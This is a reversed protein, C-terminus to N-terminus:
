GAADGGNELRRRDYYSLVPTARKARTTLHGSRAQPSLRLRMSLDHMTKTAQAQVALLSPTAAAINEAIAASAQRELAAARCYACLLPRDVPEFHTPSAALVLDLFITRTEGDLDDPPKLREPGCVYPAM